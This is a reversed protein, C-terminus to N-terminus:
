SWGGPPFRPGISARHQDIDCVGAWSKATIRGVHWPSGLPDGMILAFRSMVYKKGSLPLWWLGAGGNARGHSGSPCKIDLIALNCCYFCHIDKVFQRHQVHIITARLQNGLLCLVNFVHYSLTPCADSVSAWCYVLITEVDQTKQTIQPTFDTTLHLAHSAATLSSICATNRRTHSPFICCEDLSTHAKLRVGQENSSNEVNWGCLFQSHDTYEWM